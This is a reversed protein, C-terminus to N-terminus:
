NQFLGVIQIHRLNNWFEKKLLIKPFTLIAEKVLQVQYSFSFSNFSMSRLILFSVKKNIEEIQNKFLDNKHIFGNKVKKLLRIYNNIQSIIPKGTIFYKSLQSSSFDYFNIGCIEKLYSPLTSIRTLSQNIIKLNNKTTQERRIKVLIIPLNSFKVRTALSRWLHLDQGFQVKNDYYDFRDFVSKRIMLSPHLLPTSFILEWKILLDDTPQLKFNSVVQNNEDIILAQSGLIDIKDNKELFNLQQSLRNDMSIDDADMRAIYKGKSFRIGTNLSKTIGQNKQNILEIREDQEQFSKIIEESKDTSGDNIIIFEFNTFSQSLISQISEELYRECNFVPMVVSINPSNM